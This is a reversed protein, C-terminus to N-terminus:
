KKAVVLGDSILQHFHDIITQKLPTYKIGLNKISFSNDFKIFVGVNRKIFDRPIGFKPGMFWFLFKPVKRKPFPYKDGFRKRLVKSIRMLSATAGVVINRGIAGKKFSAAIHARAIDRVDAIANYLLPVGDKFTGIGMDIM